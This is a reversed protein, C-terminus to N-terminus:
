WYFNGTIATTGTSFRIDNFSRTFALALGTGVGMSFSPAFYYEAGIGFNPAFTFNAGFDGTAAKKSMFLGPQYYLKLGSFQKIYVRYGFDISFGFVGEPQIKNMDLGIGLRLSSASDLFTTYGISPDGGNPLSFFIGKTSGGSLWAWAPSHSVDSTSSPASSGGYMPASSSGAAFAAASGFVWGFVVVAAFKKM